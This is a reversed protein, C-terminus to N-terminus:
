APCGAFWAALFDFIDQVTVGNLQNVDACPSAAFWDALFDFIDQPSAAGSCNYDGICDCGCPGRLRHLTVVANGPSSQWAGAFLRDPRFDAVHQAPNGLLSVEGEPTPSSTLPLDLEPGVWRRRPVISRFVALPTGVIFRNYVAAAQSSPHLVSPGRVAPSHNDTPTSPNSLVIIPPGIKVPPEAANFLQMRIEPLETTPAPPQRLYVVAFSGDDFADVGGNIAHDDITFMAGPVGNDIRRGYMRTPDSNDLTTEVWTVIFRESDAAAACPLAVRHQPLHSRLTGGSVLALPDEIRYKITYCNGTTDVWATLRSQFSYAVSPYPGLCTQVTPATPVPSTLTPYWTESHGWADNQCQVFTSNTCPNCSFSLWYNWWAHAAHATTLPRGLQLATSVNYRYGLCSVLNISPQPQLEVDGADLSVGLPTFRRAHVSWNAFGDGTEPFYENGDCDFAIDVCQPADLGLGGATYAVLMANDAAIAISPRAFNTLNGSPPTASNARFQLVATQALSTPALAGMLVMAGLAASPKSRQRCTVLRDSRLLM